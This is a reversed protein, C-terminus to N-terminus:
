LFHPKLFFYIKVNLKFNVQDLINILPKNLSVSIPSSVKVIEIHKEVPGSFKNQSERFIISQNYWPNPKCQEPLKGWKKAWDKVVEM